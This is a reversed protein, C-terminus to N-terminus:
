DYGVEVLFQQAKDRIWGNKHGLMEVLEENDTKTFNPKEPIPNSKHSIRLVRGFNVLTDLQRELLKERLYSTLYIKHQIVGRHMDLAYICGDPGNYLNVPRFGEDTTALFERNEYAQECEIEYGKESILFRKIFNAEPGCVFANGDYEKPFQDGRYIVPGCAATFNVVFEKEDLMGPIYGRNIATAHLPWIRRDKMIHEFVGETPTYFENRTLM